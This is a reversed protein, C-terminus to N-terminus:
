NSAITCLWHTIHEGDSFYDLWTNDLGHGKLQTQWLHHHTDVFGPSIIKDTCDVIDTNKAPSIDKGVQEIFGNSILVDCNDLVQVRDHEDHVIVSGNYLLINQSM